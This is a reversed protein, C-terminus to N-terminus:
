ARGDLVQRCLDREMTAKILSGVLQGVSMRRFQAEITLQGVAGEPLSLETTCEYGRYRMILALNASAQQRETQDPRPAAVDTEAVQASQLFQDIEGFAFHVSTGEPTSSVAGNCPVEQGQLAKQPYLGPRRLSIGLKSCTVQLSGVTVGIIGAIEERSKAAAVLNKILQIREPTFKTRRGKQTSTMPQITEMTHRRAVPAKESKSTVSRAAILWRQEIGLFNAKKAPMSTTEALRRAQAARRYCEEALTTSEESLRHRENSQCHMETAAVLPPGDYRSEPEVRLDARDGLTLPPMPEIHPSRLVSAGAFTGRGQISICNVL